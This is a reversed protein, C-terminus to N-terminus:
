ETTVFVSEMVLPEVPVDRPGTKVKGLVELVDMGEVLDGIVTYAGDLQTLAELCLYFQSGSSRRKPNVQDGTRAMAISGKLHKHKIEAEVTYGPGGTGDGKPDGGQVVFGTVIRHFILGNYFGKIALNAVNTVNLPADKTHFKVKISGHDKVEINFYLDEPLNDSTLTDKLAGETETAETATSDPTEGAPAIEVTDEPAATPETPQEPQQGGCGFVLALAAIAVLTRGPGNLIGTM